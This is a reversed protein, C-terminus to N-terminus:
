PDVANEYGNQTCNEAARVACIGVSYLNQSVDVARGVRCRFWGHSVNSSCLSKRHPCVRDVQLLTGEGNRWSTIIIPLYSCIRRIIAFSVGCDSVKNISYASGFIGKRRLELICEGNTLDLRELGLSPDFRFWAM